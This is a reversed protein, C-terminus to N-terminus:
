EAFDLAHNMGTVAAKKVDLQAGEAMNTVIASLIKDRDAQELVDPDDIEECLYGLATISAAKTGVPVDGLAAHVLGDVLEPWQKEPVEIKGVKAVAQAAARRADPAAAALSLILQL